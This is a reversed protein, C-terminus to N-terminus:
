LKRVNFIMDSTNSDQMVKGNLTTRIRLSNPDTIVDSSVLAPGIPAFTDFGLVYNLADEEAVSRCPKGIVVALEAEYDVQNNRCIPPIVVPAFPDQRAMSPKIFLIPYPPIKMKTEAAHKAYNLGICRFIPVHELPSLLRDVRVVKDTVRCTDPKFLDGEIVKAELARTPKPHDTFNGVGPKWKPWMLAGNKLPEGRYVKGDTGGTNIHITTAHSGGFQIGLPSFMFPPIMTGSFTVQGGGFPFGGGNGQRVPEPRQGAPRKPVTTRPDVQERGRGYIPIVKDQGCGAKCVPCLPNQRQAVLWQHLCSWDLMDQLRSGLLRFRTKGTSLGYAQTDLEKMPSMSCHQM